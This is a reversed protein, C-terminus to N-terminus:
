KGEEKEILNEPKMETWRIRVGPVDGYRKIVMLAAIQSDDTWARGNLADLVGKALNDVDPKKVHEAHQRQKKTASKPYPMVCRIDVVVPVGAPIPEDDPLAQEYCEVVHKEYDHTRKPTYAHGTRTVRPRGKPVPAGPVTFAKEYRIEHM